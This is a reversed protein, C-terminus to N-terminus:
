RRGGSPSLPVSLRYSCPVLGDRYLARRFDLRPEVINM